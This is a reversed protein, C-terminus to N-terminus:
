STTTSSIYYKCFAHFINIKQKCEYKPLWHFNKSRRSFKELSKFAAGAQSGEKREMEMDMEM